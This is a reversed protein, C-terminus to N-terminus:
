AAPDRAALWAAEARGLETSPGADVFPWLEEAIRRYNGRAGLERAHWAFNAPAGGAVRGDPMLDWLLEGLGIIRPAEM